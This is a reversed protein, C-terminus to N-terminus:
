QKYILMKKIENNMEEIKNDINSNFKNNELKIDFIKAEQINILDRMKKESDAVKKNIYKNNTNIISDAQLKFSKFLSELKAKYGKFDIM